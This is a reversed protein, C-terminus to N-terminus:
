DQRGKGLLNAKACKLGTRLVLPLNAAFDAKLRSKVTFLKEYEHRMGIAGQEVYADLFLGRLERNASSPKELCGNSRTIVGRRSIKLELQAVGLGERGRESNVLACSVGGKFDKLGYGLGATEVGWFDGITVDGVRNVCAYPCEYCSDRLILARTFLYYYYYYSHPQKDLIRGGEGLVVANKTSWGGRKDRFRFDTVKEGRERELDDLFDKFMRRSPVGECVLDVTTLNECKGFLTRM